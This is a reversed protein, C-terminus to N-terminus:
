KIMKLLGDGSSKKKGADTEIEQIAQKLADLMFSRQEPTIARRDYVFGEFIFGNSTPTFLATDSQSAKKLVDAFKEPNFRVDQIKWRGRERTVVVLDRLMPGDLPPTKVFDTIEAIMGEGRRYLGASVTRTDDGIWPIWLSTEYHFSYEENFLPGYKLRLYTRLVAMKAKFEKNNIRKKANKGLLDYAEQYNREAVREILKRASIKIKQNEGAIAAVLSVMTLLLLFVTLVQRIPLHTETGKKPKSM